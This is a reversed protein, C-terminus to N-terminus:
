DTEGVSSPAVLRLFQFFAALSHLATRPDIRSVPKHLLPAAKTLQAVSNYTILPSNYCKIAIQPANEPSM